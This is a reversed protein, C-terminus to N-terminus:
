PVHVCEDRDIEADGLAIARYGTAVACEPLGLTQLLKKHTLLAFLDPSELISRVEALLPTKGFARCLEEGPGTLVVTREAAFEEEDEEGDYIGLGGFEEDAFYDPCSNYEETTEGNEFLWYCLIDDDHNLVALVPAGLRGSLHRGLALIEAEDQHDCERDCVITYGGMTPSVYATRREEQLLAMVQERSARVTHNVYFSGM